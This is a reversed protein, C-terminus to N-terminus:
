NGGKIAEIIRRTSEVIIWLLFCLAAFILEEVRELTGEPTSSFVYFQWLSICLIFMSLLAERGNAQNFEKSM